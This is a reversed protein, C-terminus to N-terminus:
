PLHDLGTTDGSASAKGEADHVSGQGDLTKQIPSPFLWGALFTFLPVLFPKIATLIGLIATIM